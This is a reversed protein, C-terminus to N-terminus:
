TPIRENLCVNNFYGVLRHESEKTVMGIDMARINHEVTYVKGFNLRSMPDLQSDRRSPKVAIPEKTIGCEDRRPEPSADAQGEMYIVTHM